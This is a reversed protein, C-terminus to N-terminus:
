RSACHGGLESWLERAWRALTLAEEWRDSLERGGADTIAYDPPGLECLFVLSGSKDAQRARWAAFGERWWSRFLAVWKANQPFGLALQIQGRAAVRGQFSDSRELIRTVLAQLEPTPPCPMERDVVYHSLDAALRMAPVAELLQITGFLDNTICNRHTEFQIPMSEQEAVRLWGEIVPIMEAVRLPMQQGIVVVYPAAIRHALTLAPRLGEISSPFATLGGRLGTRSFHPVTAEAEAFSLAGLDIAMGDFGAERVRDFKSAISGEPSDLRDMAWLAQYVLLEHRPPNV